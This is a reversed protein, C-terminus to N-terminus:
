LGVPTLRIWDLNDIFGKSGNADFAVHMTQEGADLQVTKSLTRWSTGDGTGSTMTGTKDVWGIDVHFTGGNEPQV